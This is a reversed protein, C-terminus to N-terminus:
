INSELLKPTIICPMIVTHETYNFTQVPKKQNIIVPQHEITSYSMTHQIVDHTMHLLAPVNRLASSEAM